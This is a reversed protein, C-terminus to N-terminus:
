TCRMFMRTQVGPRSNCCKSCVGSGNHLNFIRTSSSASRMRSMPKCSSFWIRLWKGGLPPPPSPINPTLRQEERGSLGLRDLLQSSEAQGFRLKYRHMLLGAESCGLAQFLVQCFHLECIFQVHHVTEYTSVQPLFDYYKKGTTLLHAKHVFPESSHSRTHRQHSEM